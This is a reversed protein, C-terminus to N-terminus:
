LSRDPLREIVPITGTETAAELAVLLARALDGPEAVMALSRAIRFQGCSPCRFEVEDDTQSVLEPVDASNPCLTLWSTYTVKDGPSTWVIRHTGLASYRRDVQKIVVRLRATRMLDQLTPLLRSPPLGKLRGRASSSRLAIDVMRSLTTQRGDVV